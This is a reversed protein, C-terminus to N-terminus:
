EVEGKYKLHDVFIEFFKDFDVVAWKQEDKNELVYVPFRKSHFPVEKVLKNWVNTKVTIDKTNRAKAEIICFPQNVDGCEGKNGSGKTPRAYKYIESFVRAIYEELKNGRDRAESM